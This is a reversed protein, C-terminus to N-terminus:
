NSVVLKTAVNGFAVAATKVTSAVNYEVFVRGIEADVKTVKANIFKGVWPVQVKDGAKVKPIIDLPQCASRDYAKMRGAFERVLVQKPAVSIVQAHRYDGSAMCALATGPTYPETIKAFSNPKIQESMQGIGVGDRKAPNDYDIDLYKVVPQDPDAADVVYARQMGSGTQWWTLVVDGKKAKGGAAIPVIMYNPTDKVGGVPFAVKSETAGPTDMKQKYFIFTVKDTGKSVADVIWNYSPVLVHEGPKASTAVSPFDKFPNPAEALAAPSCSLVLSTPVLVSKLISHMDRGKMLYRPKALAHEPPSLKWAM